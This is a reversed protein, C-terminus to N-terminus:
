TLMNKTSLILLSIWKYYSIVKNQPGLLNNSCFSSHKVFEIVKPVDKLGYAIVLKM